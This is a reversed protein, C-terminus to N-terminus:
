PYLTQLLFAPPQNSDTEEVEDTDIADRCDVLLENELHGTAFVLTFQLVTYIRATDHTLAFTIFTLRDAKLVLSM